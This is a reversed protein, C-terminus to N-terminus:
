KDSNWIELSQKWKGDEKEWIVVYKIDIEKLPPKKTMFSCTGIERAASGGLPKVDITTCKVDQTDDMAGKWFAEIAKQGKMMKAGAPLSDADKTYMAALAAINGTNVAAAWQDEFKQIAAKTQALAPAVFLGFCVALIAIRRMHKGERNADINGSGCGLRLSAPGM